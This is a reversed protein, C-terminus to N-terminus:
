IKKQEKRAQRWKKGSSLEALRVSLPFILDLNGQRKDEKEESQNTVPKKEPEKTKACGGFLAAVCAVGLLIQIKKKMSM